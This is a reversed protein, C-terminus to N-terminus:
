TTVKAKERCRECVYPVSDLIEEHEDQDREVCRDCVFDNCTECWEGEVNYDTDVYQDCRDCRAVSM